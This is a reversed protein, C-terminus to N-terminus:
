FGRKVGHDIKQNHFILDGPEVFDDVIINKNKFKYFLGGVKYTRLKKNKTVKSTIPLLMNIMQKPYFPDYDNHSNLFGGGSPYQIMRVLDCFFYKNNKVKELNEYVYGSKNINSISNRLNILPRITNFFKENRKKWENMLIFRAFRPNKYSDGIDLRKYDNMKFFFKGSHRIDKKNKNIQKLINFIKNIKKTEFFNKVICVNYKKLKVLIKKKLNKDASNVLIKKM